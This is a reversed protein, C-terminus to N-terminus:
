AFRVFHPGKFTLLRNGSFSTGDIRTFMFLVRLHYLETPEVAIKEPNSTFVETTVQVQVYDAILGVPGGQVRIPKATWVYNSIGEKGSPGDTESAQELSLNTYGMTITLAHGIADKVNTYM